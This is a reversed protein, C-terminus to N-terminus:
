LSYKRLFDFITNNFDYEATKKCPENRHFVIEIPIYFLPVDNFIDINKMDVLRMKDKETTVIIKNASYIMEFREKIKLLDAQNYRHHDKYRIPILENCQRKLYEELPVPNAIGTFLVIKSPNKVEPYKTDPFVPLLKGYSIYSFFVKQHPLANIKKLINRKDFPSFVKPTKTVVIIDARKAGSRCERLNGTPLLFDSTYLDFYDTLLIALGAKVYRHQYADDLLIINLDPLLTLLQNIGRQRNADVAVSVTHYKRAFLLPEDGIVEETSEPSAIVFGRSKRGYGRSLTAIKYKSGLLRILYEVHPTKGTGGVSLNGVTIIPLSYTKSTLLKYDFMFNRLWAILGYIVSFPFLLIRLFKM